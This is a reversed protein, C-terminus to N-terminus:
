VHARGIQSFIRKEGSVCGVSPNSFLRAIRRISEKGLMTNADCFVVIPTTVLKMGRNMAGIKGNREDIHHVTVEPYEKLLEPTGDNSGDTVWVIKLKNKPYDLEMSNQVKEHVFDKENYAAILLTIDPEYHEDTIQDRRLGLLRRIRIIILLVIGYGIYSYFVIFVLTWFIIKLTTM